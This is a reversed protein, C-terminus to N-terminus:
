EGWERNLKVTGREREAQTPISQEVTSQMSMKDENRFCSHSLAKRISTPCLQKTNHIIKKMDTHETM